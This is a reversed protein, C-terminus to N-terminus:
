YNFGQEITQPEIYEPYILFEGNIFQYKNPQFDAPISVSNDLQIISTNTTNMDLVVMNNIILLKNNLIIESEDNLIYKIVNDNSVIIKM